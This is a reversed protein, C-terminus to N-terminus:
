KYLKSVCSMLENPLSTTRERSNPREIELPGESDSAAVGMQAELGCLILRKWKGGLANIIYRLIRRIGKHEPSPSSPLSSDYPVFVREAWFYIKLDIRQWFMFRNWSQCQKPTPSLNAQGVFM